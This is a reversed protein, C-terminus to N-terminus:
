RKLWALDEVSERGWRIDWEAKWVPFWRKADAEKGLPTQGCRRVLAQYYRDARQPDHAAIWMGAKWLMTAARPDQKPLLHAAEWALEGADYYHVPTMRVVPRGYRKVRYLEDRSMPLVPEVEVEMSETRELLGAKLARDYPRCGNTLWFLRRGNAVHMQAVEWLLRAREVRPLAKNRAARYKEVYRDFAHWDRESLYPRANKFYRERALRRGLLEHLWKNKVVDGINQGRVYVLLEEASMVSEAVYAADAHFGGLLFAGLAEGYKKQALLVSAYDGYAFARRQKDLGQRGLTGHLQHPWIAEAGQREPDSADLYRAFRHEAEAYRGAKAHLKGAVWCADADDPSALAIYDLAEQDEGSRYAMVALLGSLRAASAADQGGEDLSKELEARWSKAYKLAESKVSSYDSVMKDCLFLSLAVRRQDRELCAKMLAAADHKLARWFVGNVSRAAEQTSVKGQEGMALYADLALVYDGSRYAFYAEWGTRNSAIDLSDAMGRDIAKLLSRYWKLAAEADDDTRALMWSAWTTRYHRREEPLALLALWQERAQVPEGCHYHMAGMLYLEFEEPLDGRWQDWKWGAKLREREEEELDVLGRMGSRCSRYMRMVEPELRPAALALDKWDAELTEDVRNKFLGGDVAEGPEEQELPFMGAVGVPAPQFIQQWGLMRVPYMPGCAIAAGLVCALCLLVRRGGTLRGRVVGVGRGYEIGQSAEIM